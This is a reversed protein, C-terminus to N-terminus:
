SGIERSPGLNQRRLQAAQAKIRPLLVSHTKLFKGPFHPSDAISLIQPASLTLPPGITLICCLKSEAETPLGADTMEIDHSESTNGQRRLLVRAKTRLTHLLALDWVITVPGALFILVPFYWLANYLMGATAGLFVLVRTIKDTIAKRSLQVAALAIVGVTAANLGSLLAYAPAPLTDGVSSIGLSLAYMGIAGPLRDSHIRLYLAHSLLYLLSVVLAFVRFPCM